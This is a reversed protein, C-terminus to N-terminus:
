KMAVIRLGDASTEVSIADRPAGIAIAAQSATDDAAAVSITLWSAFLIIEPGVDFKEEDVGHDAELLEKESRNCLAFDEKDGVSFMVALM